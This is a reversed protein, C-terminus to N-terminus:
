KRWDFEGVEAVNYVRQPVHLVFETGVGIDSKVMVSGGMMDLLRKVITMGLGTGRYANEDLGEQNRYSAFLNDVVEQSMGRGTDTVSIVLGIDGAFLPEVGVSLTVGGEETYKFANTVVATVVQQIRPADGVLSVPVHPDCKLVFALNRKQAEGMFLYGCESVLEKTLYPKENLAMTHSTIMSLDVLENIVTSIDENAYIMKTVGAEVAGGENEGLIALCGDSIDNVPHWLRRVVAGINSVSFDKQIVSDVSNVHRSKMWMGLLQAVVVFSSFVAFLIWTTPNSLAASVNHLSVAFAGKEWRTEGLAFLTIIGIVALLGVYVVVQARSPLEGQDRGAFGSGKEM